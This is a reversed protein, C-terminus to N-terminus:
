NNLVKYRIYNLTMSWKLIYIRLTLFQFSVFKSTKIEIFNGWNLTSIHNCIPLNDKSHISLKIRIKYDVCELKPNINKNKM